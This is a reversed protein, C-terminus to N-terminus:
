LVSQMRRQASSLLSFHKQETTNHKNASSAIAGMKQRAEAATWVDLHEIFYPMDEDHISVSKGDSQTFATLTEFIGCKAEKTLMSKDSTLEDDNLPGMWLAKSKRDWSMDESHRLKQEGKALLLLLGHFALTVLFAVILHFSVQIRHGEHVITKSETQLGLATFTQDIIVLFTFVFCALVYVDVLTLYAIAPLKESVVYKFAVMALLLTLTVSHRDGLETEDIAYSTLVAAQLLFMPLVINLFIHWPYRKVRMQMRLEPYQQATASERAETHGPIFRLRPYLHYEHLQLFNYTKVVSAYVGNMNKVLLFEPPMTGSEEVLPENESYIRALQRSTFLPRLLAPTSAPQPEDNIQPPSEHVRAREWYSVLRITLEQQDMPFWALEMPERFEGTVKWFMCVIPSKSTSDYVKYWLEEELMENCNELSLRPGWLEEDSGQIFLHGRSQESRKEDVQLGQAGPTLKRQLQKLRVEMWSAELRISAIFTQKCVDVELLQSVVLRVRVQPNAEESKPRVEVGKPSKYRLM